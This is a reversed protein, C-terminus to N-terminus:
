GAPRAGSALRDACQALDHPSLTKSPKPYYAYQTELAERTVQLYLTSNHPPPLSTTQSRALPTNGGNNGADKQKPLPNCSACTGNQPTTACCLYQWGWVGCLPVGPM